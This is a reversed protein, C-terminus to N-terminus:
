TTEALPEWPPLLGYVRKGGYGSDMRYPVCGCDHREELSRCSCAWRFCRKPAVSRGYLWVVTGKRTRYPQGTPLAAAREFGPPLDPVQDIPVSPTPKAM